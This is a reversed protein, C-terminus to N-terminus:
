IWGLFKKGVAHIQTEPVYWKPQLGYCVYMCVFM